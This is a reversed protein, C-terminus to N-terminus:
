WRVMKGDLWRVTWTWWTWTWWTWTWWTCTLWIWAHGGYGHGGHGHGGHGHGGHGEEGHGSHRWWIVGDGDGGIECDWYRVVVIDGNCNKDDWWRVTESDWQKVMVIVGHCGRQTGESRRPLTVSWFTVRYPPLYFILKPPPSPSPSSSPPPPFDLFLTPVRHTRCIDVMFVLCFMCALCGPVIWSTQCTKWIVCPKLDVLFWWLFWFKLLIYPRTEGDTSLYHLAILAQDLKSRIQSDLLCLDPNWPLASDLKKPDTNATQNQYTDNSWDTLWCWQM